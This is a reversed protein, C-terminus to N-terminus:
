RRVPTQAPLSVFLKKMAPEAINNDIEILGDDIYFRRGRSPM